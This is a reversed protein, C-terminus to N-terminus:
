RAEVILSSSGAESTAFVRMSGRVNDGNGLLSIKCYLAAGGHSPYVAGCVHGSPLSNGCDSSFEGDTVPSGSADFFQITNQSTSLPSKGVNLLLCVFTEGHVPSTALITNAPPQVPPKWVADMALGPVRGGQALGFAGSSCVFIGVVVTSRITM